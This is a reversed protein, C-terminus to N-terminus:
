VAITRFTLNIRPDTVKKAPPLRHVWNQQTRGKMVLLSGNELNISVTRKSERHKFVFKREAGFSVSAIASNRTLDKEDDSHWGMGEEGSHYLNLLCSNFSEGTKAEISTKIKLLEATWSLAVKTTKSYTYELGANGYWAVKRKTTIKKGFLVIEDRKWQITKLLNELYHESEEESFLKGFYNVDGDESILDIPYQIEDDFLKM